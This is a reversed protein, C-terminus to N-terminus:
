AGTNGANDWRNGRIRNRMDMQGRRCEFFMQRIKKCDEPLENDQLCQKVTGGRNACPTTSICILLKNKLNKCSTSM